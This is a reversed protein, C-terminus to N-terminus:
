QKNQVKNILVKMWYGGIVSRAKFGTMKGTKTDHWDSIPVRSTTENIYKYLPDTFKKFTELDPSMAAIWMIWDSKTYEKRSDLPLGYPNQKMLYYNVEKSIVNNSFLNLSWMKDWIMNYKQSWTNERDFALRYHDGENAMEEWKVAMKKAM